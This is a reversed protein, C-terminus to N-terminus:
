IFTFSQLLWHFCWFAWLDRSRKTLISVLQTVVASNMPSYNGKFHTHQLYIGGLFATVSTDYTRVSVETGLSEIVVKITPIDVGNKRQSVNLCIQVFCIFCWRIM